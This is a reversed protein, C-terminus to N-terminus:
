IDKIYKVKAPIGVVVAHNPVDSLVVSNAGIIAYDGIKVKGMIVAGAGIMVHNGIQPALHGTEKKGNAGLTINQYIKGAYLKNNTNKRSIVIVDITDTAILAARNFDITIPSSIQIGRSIYYRKNAGSVIKVGKQEAYEVM